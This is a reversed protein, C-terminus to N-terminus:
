DTAHDDAGWKQWTEKDALRDNKWNRNYPSSRRQIVYYVELWVCVVKYAKSDWIKVPFLAFRRVCRVTECVRKM